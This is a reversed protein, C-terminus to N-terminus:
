EGPRQAPTYGVNEVKLPRTSDITLAGIHRVDLTQAIAVPLRENNVFVPLQDGKRVTVPLVGRQSGVEIDTIVVRTPQAQATVPTAAQNFAMWGLELAIITLVAKLYRDATM